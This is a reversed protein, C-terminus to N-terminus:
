WVSRLVNLYGLCFVILLLFFFVTSFIRFCYLPVQFSLCRFVSDFALQIETDPKEAPLAAGLDSCLLGLFGHGHPFIGRGAGLQKVTRPYRYAKAYPGKRRVRTVYM